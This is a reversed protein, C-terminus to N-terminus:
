PTEVFPRVGLGVVQSRMMTRPGDEQLTGIEQRGAEVTTASSTDVFPQVGLGVVQSRMMTRPAAEQPTVSEQQAVGVANKEIYRPIKVFVISAVVMVAIGWAVYRPNINRVTFM